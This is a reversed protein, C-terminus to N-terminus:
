PPQKEKHQHGLSFNARAAVLMIIMAQIIHVIERPVSSNREMGFGGTQIMSFFFGVIVVGLPLTNALLAAMVGTWAYLPTVLMGDIYRYHTGLVEICGVLGAVAGSFFMVQYGRKQFNVGGYQAFSANFGMMRLEYGAVWRNFVIATIVAVLLIILIGGHWQTREVLKPLRMAQEIRHSQTMGSAVDRFPHSVLYSALFRAPYNMLLTSILLPIKFRFQLFAALWAYSGAVVVACLFVTPLRLWIPFPLYLAVLAATVGGLVMQGEGGINYFGVRFPIAAALGMGIIPTARNIMSIFNSFRRGGFVGQFMATYAEWPNYGSLLMIVAGILVGGLIALVPTQLSKLLNNM